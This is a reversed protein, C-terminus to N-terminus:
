AARKNVKAAVLNMMGFHEVIDYMDGNIRLENDTTLVTGEPMYVISTTYYVSEFESSRASSLREMDGFVSAVVTPTADTPLGSAAASTQIALIDIDFSCEQLLYIDAYHESINIGGIDQNKAAVMYRTGTPVKVVKDFSLNKHLMSESVAGESRNYSPIFPDRSRPKLLHVGLFEEIKQVISKEAEKESNEYVMLDFDFCYAKYQGNEIVVAVTLHQGAVDRSNIVGM